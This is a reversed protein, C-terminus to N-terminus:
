ILFSNFKTHILVDVYKNEIISHEILRAELKYNNNNLVKYLRPRINFAYTYIKHFMLDGFAVKEILNLFCKWHHEFFKEELQTDMLFSIEANKDVWNIHVLGGYGVFVNNEFYSFLIQTPKDIDFLKSVVNKFYSDQTEKDLPNTQRLHYIQDNRWKMIDYRDQFRIPAITYENFSYVQESLCKYKRM